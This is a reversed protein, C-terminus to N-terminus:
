GGTERYHSNVGKYTNDHFYKGEVGVQTVDNIFAGKTHSTM